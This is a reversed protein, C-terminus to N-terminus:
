SNWRQESIEVNSQIESKIESNDKIEGNSGKEVNQISWILWFSVDVYRWWDVGEKEDRVIKGHKKNWKWRLKRGRRNRLRMNIMTTELEWTERADAELLQNLRDLKKVSQEKKKQTEPKWIHFFGKKDYSYCGWFMFESYDAWKKRTCSKINRELSTRWMWKKYDCQQGLIVSTENSWIVNKWDEITWHQYWFCFQLRTKMMTESLETKKTTKCTRM